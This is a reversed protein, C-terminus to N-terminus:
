RTAPPTAGARRRHVAAYGGSSAAPSLTVTVHETGHKPTVVRADGRVSRSPTAAPKAAATANRSGAPTTATSRQPTLTGLLTSSKWVM